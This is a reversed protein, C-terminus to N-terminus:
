LQDKYVKASIKGIDDISKLIKNTNDIINKIVDEQDENIDGAARKLLAESFETITEVPAKLDHIVMATFEAKLNEVERIKSIYKILMVLEKAIIEMTDKVEEKYVDGSSSHISFRGVKEDGSKLEMVLESKITKSEDKKDGEYNEFIEFKYEEVKDGSMISKKVSNIFKEGVNERVDLYVEKHVSIALSASSYDFLKHLFNFLNSVLEKGDYAYKSIDRIRNALTAEFLLRDLIRNVKTRINEPSASEQSKRQPPIKPEQKKELLEKIVEILRATDTGKVVYSEAGAEIGWFRDQQQGLSTLLIVPIHAKSPDNKLLRCFLYGNLEPMIIDSIVLDPLEIDVQSMAELGDKATVVEYGVRQLAMKYMMLQTPSDDVVLIKSM